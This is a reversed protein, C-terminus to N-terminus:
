LSPNYPAAQHGQFREEKQWWWRAACKTIGQWHRDMMPVTRLLKETRPWISAVIRPLQIIQWSTIARVGHELFYGLIPLSFYMSEFSHYDLQKQIRKKGMGDDDLYLLTSMTLEFSIFPIHGFHEVKQTLLVWCKDGRQDMVAFHQNGQKFIWLVTISHVAKYDSSM